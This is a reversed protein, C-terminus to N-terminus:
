EVASFENVGRKIEKLEVLMQKRTKEADQLPDTGGPRVAPLRLRAIGPGSVGTFAEARFPRPGLFRSDLAAQRAREAERGIRAAVRKARDSTTKAKRDEAEKERKAREAELRDIFAIESNFRDKELRRKEQDLFRVDAYEEGFKEKRLKAAEEILKMRDEHAARALFRPLDPDNTARLQSAAATLRAQRLGAGAIETTARGRQASAVGATELAAAKDRADAASRIRRAQRPNLYEIFDFRGQRALEDFFRNEDPGGRKTRDSLERASVREALVARADNPARNIKNAEARFLTAALHGGPLVSLVNLLRNIAISPKNVVNTTEQVVARTLFQDGQQRINRGAIAAKLKDIDAALTDTAKQFARATEGAANFTANLDILFGQMNGLLAAVGKFARTEPFLGVIQEANLGQMRELAGALGDAELAAANFEFGLERALDIAEDTPKLFSRLIANLSTVAENTNIGARTLTALVAAAEEFKVGSVSATSAVTGFSAALEAFTTKGRKVTAFLVDSVRAANEAAMGYSNLITTIIDAAISTQTFGAKAATVSVRLVDVAKDTAVSASLIQYLGSSLVIASEGFEVSLGVVDGRLKKFLPGAQESLMTNVAAMSEQFKSAAMTAKVFGATLAAGSLIAPLRMGKMARGLEGFSRSLRKVRSQAGSTFRIIEQKGKALGARLQGDKIFLRVFASGVEPM